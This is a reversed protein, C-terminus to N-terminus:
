LKNVTVSSSESRGSGAISCQEVFAAICWKCVVGGGIPGVGFPTAVVFAEFIPVMWERTRFTRWDLGHKKPRSMECTPMISHLKCLM